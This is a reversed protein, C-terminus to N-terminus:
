AELSSLRIATARLRDEDLAIGLGPEESLDFAGGRALVPDALPYDRRIETWEPPDLPFELYPAGGTGNALHANAILGIGNGWTHPSFIVGARRARAAVRALGTMGCTLVADPQLVDLCGRDVLAELEHLERTMEGGAIRIGVADRLRAMGDQDGRHLPEEMWFVGLSELARAVDLARDFAWPEATDWPMRWGQNCDVMVQLRDGVRKRIAEVGALDARWDARHFRVKMAEFGSELFRSAVDALAEPERLVGASAYVPVRREGGGLMRFCPLAGLKGALDWLAVDLPWYRAHHFSLNDLVRWHRELDRPDRGLFLGAHREFGVMDDGSGVGFTGDDSVVRVLTVDFHARPRTDWAPPFPPDLPLRHDGIEIREIRAPTM